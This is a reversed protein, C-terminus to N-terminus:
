QFGILGYKNLRLERNRDLDPSRGEGTSRWGRIRLIRSCSSTRWRRRWDQHRPALLLSHEKCNGERAATSSSHWRLSRILVTPREAVPEGFNEEPRLLTFTSSNPKAAESHQLDGKNLRISSYKLERLWWAIVLHIGHTTPTMGWTQDGQGHSWTASPRCASPTPCDCPINRSSPSPGSRVSRVDLLSTHPWYPYSWHVLLDGMHRHVRTAGTSTLPDCSGCSISILMCSNFEYFYIHKIILIKISRFM